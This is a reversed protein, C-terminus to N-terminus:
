KRVPNPYLGTRFYIDIFNLGVAKQRITVEGAAPPAVTVDELKMVEPGGTAHIRIARASTKGNM